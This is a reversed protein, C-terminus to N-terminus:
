IIKSFVLEIPKYGLGEFLASHNLHLKTGNVIKVVGLGKFCREAFKFMEVGIKTKRYEPKLYYLDVSAHKTTSYHLFTDIVSIHYGILAGEDRVCVVHLHGSNDLNKYKSYDLSVPVDQHDLGLEQWHPEIFPEFEECMNNWHEVSYTINESM